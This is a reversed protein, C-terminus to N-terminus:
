APTMLAREHDWGLTFVRNRVTRRSAKCRPDTLWDSASKTEGWATYLQRDRRNGQQEALTIWRCNGPEYNGDNDARDITLGDTYGNSLAWDRFAAPDSRWEECVSVGRGGYNAYAPSKPNHCRAVMNHWIHYIRKHNVSVGHTTLRVRRGCGCSNSRVGLTEVRVTASGGCACGCVAFHVWKVWGKSTDRVAQKKFLSQVTLRGFVSGITTDSIKAM